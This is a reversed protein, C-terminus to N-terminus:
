AIGRYDGCYHSLLATIFSAATTAGRIRQGTTSFRFGYATQPSRWLDLHPVGPDAYFSDEGGGGWASSWHTFPDHSVRHMPFNGVLPVGWGDVAILAAVRGGQVQWLHAAAIAGVVGASFGILVLPVQGLEDPDDKKLRNKKLRDHQLRDHLFQVIHWGSYPPIRDTPIVLCSSSLESVALPNESCRLGVLFADSLEPPHVGPCIILRM